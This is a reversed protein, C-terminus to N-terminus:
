AWALIVAISVSAARSTGPTTATSVAASRGVWPRAILERLLATSAVSRASNRPWGTTTTTASDSAAALDGPIGLEVSLVNATGGPLIALPVASGVLGSAVEMVTGDGGYAAVLDVGAEVALRAYRTADGAQNTISVDWRVDAAQFAENMVSLIAMDQGARPNIIVQIRQM